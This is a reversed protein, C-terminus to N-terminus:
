ILYYIFRSGMISDNRNKGVVTMKVRSSCKLLYERAIREVIEISGRLKVQSLLNDWEYLSFIFGVSTIVVTDFIQCRTKFIPYSRVFRTIKIELLPQM